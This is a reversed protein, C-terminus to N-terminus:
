DAQHDYGFSDYQNDAQHDYGYRGCQSDAHDYGNEDYQNDAQYDYGYRGCQRDAYDYGNGDYQNDAQNDYGYRGSQSDAHDYGNGGYENDAQHDYAGNATLNPDNPKAFVSPNKNQDFLLREENMAQQVREGSHSIESVTATKTNHKSRLIYEKKPQHRKINNPGRVKRKGTNPQSMQQGQSRRLDIHQMSEPDQIYILNKVRKQSKLEPLRQQKERQRGTVQIREPDEIYILKKVRTEEKPEVKNQVIDNEQVKELSQLKEREWYDSGDEVQIIKKTKGRKPIINPKHDLEATQGTTFDVDEQQGSGENRSDRELERKIRGQDLCQLEKPIFEFAENETSNETEADSYAVKKRKNGRSRNHTVSKIRGKIQTNTDGLKSKIYEKSKHNSIHDEGTISWDYNDLLNDCSLLMNRHLTRTKGDLDNEPQVKYTINESNLNELIVHVKDEWFSRM